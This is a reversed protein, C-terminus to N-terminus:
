HEAAATLRQLWHSQSSENIKYLVVDAISCSICIVGPWIATTVTQWFFFFKETEFHPSHNEQLSRLYFNLPHFVLYPHIRHLALFQRNVYCWAKGGVGRSTFLTSLLFYTVPRSLKSIPGMMEWFASAIHPHDQRRAVGSSSVLFCGLMFTTGRLSTFLIDDEMGWIIAQRHNPSM